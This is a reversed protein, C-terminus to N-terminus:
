AASLGPAVGPVLSTHRLSRKSRGPMYSTRKPVGTASIQLSSPPPRLSPWSILATCIPPGSPPMRGPEFSSVGNSKSSSAASPQMTPCPPMSAKSSRVSMRASARWRSSNPAWSLQPFHKGHRIPSWRANSITSEGPSTSRARSSASSSVSSSPESQAWPPPM